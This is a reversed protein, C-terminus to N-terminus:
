RRVKCNIWEKPDPEYVTIIVVTPPLSVQVHLDRGDETRGYILCSPSYKDDPYEEIVEGNYIADEVECRLIDRKIMRKVAHDSFSYDGSRINSQIDNLTLMKVTFPIDRTTVGDPFPQHKCIWRRRLSIM